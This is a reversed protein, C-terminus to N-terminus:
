PWGQVDISGYSWAQIASEDRIRRAREEFKKAETEQKQHRLVKANNILVDATRLSQPGCREEFVPLTERFVEISEEYRGIHAYTEAFGLRTMAVQLDDMGSLTTWQQLAKMFSALAEYYRGAKIQIFGFNSLASTMDVSVSGGRETLFDVERRFVQEASGFNGQLEYLGSV